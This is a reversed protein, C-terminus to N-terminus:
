DLSSLGNIGGIIAGLATAVMWLWWKGRAGTYEEIAFLFRFHYVEWQTLNGALRPIDLISSPLFRTSAIM